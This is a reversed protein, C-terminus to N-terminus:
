VTDILIINMETLFRYTCQFPNHSLTEEPSFFMQRESAVQFLFSRQVGPASSHFFREASRDPLNVHRVCCKQLLLVISWFNWAVKTLVETKSILGCDTFAATVFVFSYLWVDLFLLIVM